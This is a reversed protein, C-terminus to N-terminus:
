LACELTQVRADARAGPADIRAVVRRRERDHRALRAIAHHDDALSRARDLECCSQRERSACASLEPAPERLGADIFCMERIARRDRFAKGAFGRTPAPSRRGEGGSTVRHAGHSSTSSASTRGRTIRSTPVSAISRKQPRSGSLTTTPFLLVSPSRTRMGNGCGLPADRHSLWGSFRTRSRRARAMTARATLPKVNCGTCGFQM